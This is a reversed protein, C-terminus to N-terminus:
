LNQDIKLYWPKGFALLDTYNNDFLIRVIEYYKLSTRFNCFCNLYYIRATIENISTKRKVSTEASEAILRAKTTRRINAACLLQIPENASNAFLILGRSSPLEKSIENTLGTPEITCCGEFLNPIQSPM